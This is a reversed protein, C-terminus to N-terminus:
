RCVVYVVDAGHVHGCIIVDWTGKSQECLAASSKLGSLENNTFYWSLMYRMRRHDDVNDERRSDRVAVKIDYAKHAAAKQLAATAIANM